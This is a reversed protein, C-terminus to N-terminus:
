SCKKWLWTFFKSTWIEFNLRSRGKLEKEGMTAQILNLKKTLILIKLTKWAILTTHGKSNFPPMLHFKWGGYSQYWSVTPIYLRSIPFFPRLSLKQLYNKTRLCRGLVDRCQKAKYLSHELSFCQLSTRPRQRLVFFLICFWDKLNDKRIDPGNLAIGDMWKLPGQMSIYRIWTNYFHCCICLVYSLFVIECKM